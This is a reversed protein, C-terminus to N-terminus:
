KKDFGRGPRTLNVKLISNYVIMPHEQISAGSVIKGRVKNIDGAAAYNLQCVKGGCFNFSQCKYTTGHCFNACQKLDTAWLSSIIYGKLETKSRVNNFISLRTRLQCYIAANLTQLAQFVAFCIIIKLASNITIM